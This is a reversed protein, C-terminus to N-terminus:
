LVWLFVIVAARWLISLGSLVAVVIGAGDDLEAIKPYNRVISTILSLGLFITGIIRMALM